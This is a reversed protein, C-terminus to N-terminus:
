AAVCLFGARSRAGCWGADVDGRRAYSQKFPLKNQGGISFGYRYKGALDLASAGATGNCVM